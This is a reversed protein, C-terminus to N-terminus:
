CVCAKVTEGCLQRRLRVKPHRKRRGGRRWKVGLWVGEREARSKQICVGNREKGGGQLAKEERTIGKRTEDGIFLCVCIYVYVEFYDVVHVNSIILM